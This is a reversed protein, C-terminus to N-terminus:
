LCYNAVPMAVRRFLDEQSHDENAVFDYTFQKNDPTNLVITNSDGAVDRICKRGGKGMEMENLPRM